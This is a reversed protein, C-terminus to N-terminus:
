HELLDVGHAAHVVLIMMTLGIVFVLRHTIVEVVCDLRPLDEAVGPTLPESGVQPFAPVAVKASVTQRVSRAFAVYQELLPQSPKIGLDIQKLNDFLEANRAEHAADEQGFSLALEDFELVAVHEAQM